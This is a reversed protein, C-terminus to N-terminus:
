ANNIIKTHEEQEKDTFRRKIFKAPNGAYISYPLVDKTVVSGAAVISGRSIKVGSMVIVGYGLWVDDEIIIESNIGLWTYDQDRIQSALRIPCGIQKFHHDYKGVLAVQNGFIVNDGILVNCEIQSYRGIYFNQGIVIKSKGWIQVGRGSHFNKGFKYKRWKIKTLYFNRIKKLTKIM